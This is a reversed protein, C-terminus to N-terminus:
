SSVSAVAHEARLVHKQIKGVSTRPLEARFEVLEPVRFKALRTACWAILEDGNANFGERLVVYAKISEDRMADPVGIVAADFVAPHEKLVAEVESAAVNEGARKIMDKARDVFEFLGDERERVNDGTWLWGDRIADETAEQNKYYGRMLSIGPTGRVLLQGPTGPSVDSGQEDVVRCRFPLTPRGITMNERRGHLPNAMPWGLQETMGYIQLLPVDFRRDWEELQTRTISQAFFGLRPRHEPTAREPQALLMRMPAAFLSLVSARHRAAIDWFRSASFRDAVVLTAGTVLASMTSYYQANGHYYPLVVLNRDDPRIGAHQAVAEGAHIYNAHTILCGKPRSTTGSTYLIAVDDDARPVHAPPATGGADNLLEQFPEGCTLVRPIGLSTGRQPASAHVAVLVCESHSALYELESDSSAPNVPVIVAGIRAAGFWLYLFEPCNSLILLLKDGRKIGMELLVAATRDIREAFEAYTLTLPTGDVPQFILWPKDPQHTARAELERDLTRRHAITLPHPQVEGPRMSPQM